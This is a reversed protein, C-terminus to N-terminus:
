AKRGRTAFLRASNIIKGIWVKASSPELEGLFDFDATLGFFDARICFSAFSVSSSFYGLGFAMRKLAFSPSMSEILTPSSSFYLSASTDGVSDRLLRLGAAFECSFLRLALVFVVESLVGAGVILGPGFFCFISELALVEASDLSFLSPGVSVDVEEVFKGDEGFRMFDISVEDDWFAEGAGLVFSIAMSRAGNCSM